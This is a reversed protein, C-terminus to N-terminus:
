QCEGQSGCVELVLGVLVEVDDAAGVLVVEACASVVLEASGTVVVYTQNISKTGLGQKVCLRPRPLM